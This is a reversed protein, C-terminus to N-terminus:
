GCFSGDVTLPVSYGDLGVAHLTTNKTSLFADISFNAFGKDSPRCEDDSKRVNFTIRIADQRDIVPNHFGNSHNRPKMLPIGVSTVTVSSEIDRNIFDNLTNVGSVADINKLEGNDFIANAGRVETGALMLTRDFTIKGNVKSSDISVSLDCAPLVSAYQVGSETTSYGGVWQHSNKLGFEIDTSKNKIQFAVYKACGLRHRVVDIEELCDTWAKVPNAKHLFLRDSLAESLKYVARKTDLKPYVSKAWRKTAILIASCNRLGRQRTLGSDLASRYMAKHLRVIRDNDISKGFHPDPAWLNLEAAGKLLMDAVSRDALSPERDLLESRMNTLALTLLRPDEYLCHVRGGGVEYAIRTLEKVIPASALPARILLPQDLQLNVGVKIAVRAFSQLRTAVNWYSDASIM